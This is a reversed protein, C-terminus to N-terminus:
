IAAAVFLLGEVPMDRDQRLITSSVSAISFGSEILISRVYSDAHRYRRTEQLKWGEGLALKEVSFAFLGGRAMMKRVNSFLPGLDGFYNFVDAATVVRAQEDLGLAAIDAKELRDYCAKARAKALMGASVDYGSLRIALPRLLQGMLGTGCGLDVAHDVIGPLFPALASFLASPTQYALKEVLATEFSGAYQDFLAEVFALAQSGAQEGLLELQLGAGLADDPDRALVKRFVDRAAGVEGNSTLLEGLLFWGANWEPALTLAERMLEAAAPKDGSEALM